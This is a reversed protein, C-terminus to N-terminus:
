FEVGDTCFDICAFRLKKNIEEIPLLELDKNFQIAEKKPTSPQGTSYEFIESEIKGAIFAKFRRISSTVLILRKSELSKWIDYSYVMYIVKNGSM